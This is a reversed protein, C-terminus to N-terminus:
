KWNFVLRLFYTTDLQEIKTAVVSNYEHSLGLRLLWYKSKALPFDLSSEHVIRYNAWDDFSSSYVFENVMKGWPAIQWAHRAGLELGFSNNTPEDNSYAERRYQLGARLRLERHENRVAYWGFGAALTTRLSIEEISDRELETRAYWLFRENLQREFDAGGIMENESEKYNNEAQVWTAHLKLREKAWKKEAVTGLHLRSNNTNGSKARYSVSGEFGWRPPPPPPPGVVLPQDAPGAALLEAATAVLPAAPDRVEIQGGTLIVPGVAEGREAVAVRLPGDTQLSVVRGLPISLNGAFDTKLTIKGQRVATVEGVLRSGNDLEITDAPALSALLAFLAFVRRSSQFLM